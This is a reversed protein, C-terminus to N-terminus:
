MVATAGRISAQKIRIKRLLKRLIRSRNGAAIWPHKVVSRNVLGQCRGSEASQVAVPIGVNTVGCAKNACEQILAAPGYEGHSRDAFILRFSAKNM